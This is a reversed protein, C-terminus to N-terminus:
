KKIVGLNEFEARRRAWGIWLWGIPGPIGAHAGFAIACGGYDCKWIRLMIISFEVNVPDYSAGAVAVSQISSRLTILVHEM